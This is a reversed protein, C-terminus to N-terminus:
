YPSQTPFHPFLKPSTIAKIQVITAFPTVSSQGFRFIGCYENLQRKLLHHNM